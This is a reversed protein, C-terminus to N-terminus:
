CLSGNNFVDDVFVRIKKLQADAECCPIWSLSLHVSSLIIEYSDVCEFLYLIFYTTFWSPSKRLTNSPEHFSSHSECLYILHYWISLFPVYKEFISQSEKFRHGLRFSFRDWCSRYGKYSRKWQHGMEEPVQFSISLFPFLSPIPCEWFVGFHFCPFRLISPNPNSDYSWSHLARPYKWSPTQANWFEIDSMM